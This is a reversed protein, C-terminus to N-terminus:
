REKSMALSIFYFFICHFIVRYISCHPWWCWFLSENRSAVHHLLLSHALGSSEAGQVRNGEVSIQEFEITWGVYVADLGHHIMLAVLEWMSAEGRRRRLKPTTAVHHPYNKLILPANILYPELEWTAETLPYGKWLVLYRHWAGDGKHQLIGAVEYEEEEDLLILPQPEAM